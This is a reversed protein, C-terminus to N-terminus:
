KSTVELKYTFKAESVEEKLYIYLKYNDKKKIGINSTYLIDEIDSINGDLVEKDNLYLIYGLKDKEVNSEVEKLHIDYKVSKLSKNEVIFKNPYINIAEEKTLKDTSELNFEESDEFIIHLNTNLYLNKDLYRTVFYGVGGMFLCMVIVLIFKGIRNKKM